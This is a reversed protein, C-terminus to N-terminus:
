PTPCPANRTPLQGPPLSDTDIEDPVLREIHEIILTHQIAAHQDTPALDVTARAGGPLGSIVGTRGALAGKVVRVLDKVRFSDQITIFAHEPPIWAYAGGMGGAGGMGSNGALAVLLYGDDRIEVVRGEAGTVDQSPGEERSPGILVTPLGRLIYVWDEVQPLKSRLRPLPATWGEPKQFTHYLSADYKAGPKVPDIDDDPSALLVKGCPCQIAEGWKTQRVKRWANRKAALAGCGPCSVGELRLGHRSVFVLAAATDAIAKGDVGVLVQVQQPAHGYPSRSLKRLCAIAM